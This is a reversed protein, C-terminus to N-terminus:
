QFCESLICFAGHVSLLNFILLLRSTSVVAQVSRSEVSLAAIPPALFLEALSGSFRRIKLRHFLRTVHKQYSIQVKWILLTHEKELDEEGDECVCANVHVCGRVWVCVCTCVWVYVSGCTCVHVYARMCLAASPIPLETCLRNKTSKTRM